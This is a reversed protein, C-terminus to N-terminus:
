PATGRRAGNSKPLLQLVRHLLNERKDVVDAVGEPLISESRVVAAHSTNLLIPVNPHIDHLKRAADLGNMRPMSVDLIILDPNIEPAREVADLGDSAEGCIEFGSTELLKRIGTRVSANDDVIFVRYLMGGGPLWPTVASRQLAGSETRLRVM